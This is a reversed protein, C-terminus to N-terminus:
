QFCRMRACTVPNMAVSPNWPIFACCVSRVWMCKQCKMLQAMCEEVMSPFVGSLSRTRWSCCTLSCTFVEDFSFVASCFCGLGQICREPSQPKERRPPLLPPPPRRPSFPRGAATVQLVKAGLPRSSLVCCCFALWCGIVPRM